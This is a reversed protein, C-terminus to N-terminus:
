LYIGRKVTKIIFLFKIWMKQLFSNWWTALSGRKNRKSKMNNKLSHNFQVWISITSFWQSINTLICLFTVLTTTITLYTMKNCHLSFNVKLTRTLTTSPARFRTRVKLNKISIHIKGKLFLHLTWLLFSFSKTLSVKRVIFLKLTKYNTKGM